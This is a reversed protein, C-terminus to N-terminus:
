PWQLRYFRQPAGNTAAPDTFQYAPYAAGLYSWNTGALNTSVLVSFDWATANTLAFQFQGDCQKSFNTMTVWPSNPWYNSLVTNLDSQNVFGDNDLDGPVIAAAM